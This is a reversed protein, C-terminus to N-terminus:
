YEQITSIYGRDWDYTGGYYGPYTYSDGSSTLIDDDYPDVYKTLGTSTYGVITFAHGGSTNSANCFIYYGNNIRSVVGNYTMSGTAVYNGVTFGNNVLYSYVKSTNMQYLGTSGYISIIYNRMQNYWDYHYIQNWLINHTTYFTCLNEYQGMVKNSTWSLVTQSFTAYYASDNYTIYDRLFSVNVNKEQLLYTYDNSVVKGDTLSIVIDGVGGYIGQDDEFLVMPNDKTSLQLLKNIADVYWQTFFGSVKNDKVVIFSAIVIDNEFVPFIM